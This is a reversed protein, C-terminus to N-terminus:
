ERKGDRSATRRSRRSWMRQVRSIAYLIKLRSWSNVFFLYFLVAAGGLLVASRIGKLLRASSVVVADIAMLVAFVSLLRTPNEPDAVFDKTTGLSKGFRTRILSWVLACLLLVHLVMFLVNDPTFLSGPPFCGSGLVSSSGSQTM